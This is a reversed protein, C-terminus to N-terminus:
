RAYRMFLRCSGFWARWFVMAGFVPRLERLVAEVEEEVPFVVCM